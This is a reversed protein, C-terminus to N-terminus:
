GLMELVAAYAVADFPRRTSRLHRRSIERVARVQLDTKQFTNKM